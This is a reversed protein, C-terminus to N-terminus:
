KRKQRVYVSVTLAAISVGLSLLAIINSVTSSNKIDQVNSLANIQMDADISNTVTIFSYSDLTEQDESLVRIIWTGPYILKQTITQNKGSKPDVNVTTNVLTSDEATINITTERTYDGNNKLSVRFTAEENLVGINNNASYIRPDINVELSPVGVGLMWYGVASVAVILIAVLITTTVVKSIARKNLHKEWV